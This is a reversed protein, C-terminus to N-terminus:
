ARPGLVRRDGREAFVVEDATEREGVRILAYGVDRYIYEGNAMQHAMRKEAKIEIQELLKRPIWTADADTDVMLRPIKVAKERDVQNKILCGVTFTGMNNGRRIGRSLRKRAQRRRRVCARNARPAAGAAPSRSSHGAKWRRLGPLPWKLCM